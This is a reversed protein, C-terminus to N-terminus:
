DVDLSLQQPMSQSQRKVSKPLLNSLQTSKGKRLLLGYKAGLMFSLRLKAHVMEGVIAKSSSEDVLMVAGRNVAAALLEQVHKPVAEDVVFTLVPDASFAKDMLDSHLRSGIENLLTDLAWVSDQPHSREVPITKMLALLRDAAAEIERAQDAVPIRRQGSKALFSILPSTLSIFWRPNGETIAFISDVGAYLELTKRKRVSVSGKKSEHFYFDRLAAVPAAKRLVSDRKHAWLTEAASLDISKAKLYAAFTRDKTVLSMFIRHWPEGPSYPSKRRVGRNDKPEFVSRGFAEEATIHLGYKETLSRWLARCFAKSDTRDLYWLRVQKYDHELAPGEQNFLARYATASVPSIALKLYLRPYSVRLASFLHGIVWDPATELEDFLLAWKAEPEGVAANFSECINSCIDLFDMHLHSLDALRRSCEDHPLLSCANALVRIDSLRNRLAQRVSLLSPVDPKVRLTESLQRALTAEDDSSLDVRRYEHKSGVRAAMTELVAHIVHTTFCALVLTRHNDERLKGYGLSSLQKSWSIDSAIFVGSYSIQKRFLEAKQGHWAALAAPQLMKLLTTKGSGRPGVLVSPYEGALEEFHESYVFGDAVQDPGLYKANFAEVGLAFEM